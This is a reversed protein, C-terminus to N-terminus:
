NMVPFFTFLWCGTLYIGTRFDPYLVNNKLGGFNNGIEPELVINAKGATGDFFRWSSEELLKNIKICAKAEKVSM